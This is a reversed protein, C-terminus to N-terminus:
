AESLLRVSMHFGRGLLWGLMLGVMAAIGSGLALVPASAGPLASALNDLSLLAPMGFLWRRSRRAAFAILPVAILYLFIELPTPLAHGWSAGIITAGGDCLAFLFALSVRGRWSQLFPGVILAAVFSDSALFATAVSFSVDTM